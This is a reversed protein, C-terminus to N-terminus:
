LPLVEFLVCGFDKRTALSARGDEGVNDYLQIDNIYVTILKTGMFGGCVGYAFWTAETADEDAWGEPQHWHKCDKCNGM